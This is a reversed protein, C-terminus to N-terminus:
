FKRHSVCGRFVATQNTPCLIVMILQWRPSIQLLRPMTEVHPISVDKGSMTKPCPNFRKPLLNLQKNQLASSCCTSVKGQHQLTFTTTIPDLILVTSPMGFMTIPFTGGITLRPQKTNILCEILTPPGFHPKHSCQHISSIWHEATATDACLHQAWAEQSANVVFSTM